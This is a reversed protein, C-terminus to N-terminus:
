FFNLLMDARQIETHEKGLRRELTARLGLAKDEKGHGSEIFLFYENLEAKTRDDMEATGMENIISNADSGFQLPFDYAKNESISFIKGEKLSGIVLPAHTTIIFQMKPFAKRLDGIVKKQWAPHLHLDVEDILVIGPTELAANERLHPNLLHCRFAIEMVMAITSRVGDSLIHFPLQDNKSTFHIMLERQKIDFVLDQCDEICIKVASNVASLMPSSTRNQLASLTETFYLDLFFKINTLPDLANYYGRLRSGDHEIGVDKKEKKFRDTSYYAILPIPTSNDNNRIKNQMFASLEKMERANIQTTKGGKTELTREWVITDSNQFLQNTKSNLESVVAESWIKVAYQRELHSLRVDDLAIGPSSIKDKYKDVDLFLSGIAIRVAELVATKGTGNVGVIMNFKPDLEMEMNEFCRFNEVRIKKLYM